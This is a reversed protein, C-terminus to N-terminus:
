REYRQTKIWQVLPVHRRLCVVIVPLSGAIVQKFSLASSWDHEVGSVRTSSSLISSEGERDFTPRRVM